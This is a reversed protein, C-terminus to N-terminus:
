AVLRKVMDVVDENVEMIRSDAEMDAITAWRCHLGGIDFTASKWVQPMDVIDAVWLRYIYDRMEGHHSLSPKSHNMEYLYKLRFSSKPIGYKDSLWEQLEPKEMSVNGSTDRNPFFDCEWRVDRYLLFRNTGKATDRVAIISSRKETRDMNRIDELPRAHDYPMLLAM